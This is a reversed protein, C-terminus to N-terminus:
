WGIYKPPEVNNLRLYVILQGVHHTQHDQILNLFQFKNLKGENWKFEKALTNTDLQSIASIAYQYAENIFILTKQKDMEHVHPKNTLLPNTSEAIYVSSLWFINEGVHVLQEKFSMESTVPKFEYQDENLQSAITLTYKKANELKKIHSAMLLQNTQSFAWFPLNFFLFAVTTKM